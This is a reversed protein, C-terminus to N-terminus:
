IRRMYPSLLIRALEDPLDPQSEKSAARTEGMVLADVGRERALHMAAFIAAQRIDGPMSSIRVGSSHNHALTNVVVHTTDTISQVTVVEQNVGDYITLTSNDQGTAYPATAMGLTSDVTLSVNSGATANAQLIANPWGSVYTLKVEMQAGATPSITSGGFQFTTWDQSYDEIKWVQPYSGRIITSQTPDISTYTIPGPYFGFQLTTITCIPLTDCRFVLAGRSTVFAKAGQHAARGVYGRETQTTAHLGLPQEVENAIWASVTDLINLQEIAATGAVGSESISGWDIGTPAELLEQATILRATM